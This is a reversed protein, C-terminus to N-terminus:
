VHIGIDLSAEIFSQYVKHTKFHGPQPSTSAGINKQKWNGAKLSVSIVVKNCQLNQSIGEERENRRWSSEVSQSAAGSLLTGVSGPMVFAVM